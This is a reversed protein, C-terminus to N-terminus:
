HLVSPGTQVLPAWATGVKKDEPCHGHYYHHHPLGSISLYPFVGDAQLQLGM